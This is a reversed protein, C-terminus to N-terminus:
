RNFANLYAWKVIIAKYNSIKRIIVQNEPKDPKQFGPTIFRAIEGDIASFTFYHSNNPKQM